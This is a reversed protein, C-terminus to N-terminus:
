NGGAMALFDEESLIPIGLEKAKKNKSSNSTTDNNILYDTKASVSGSVTGGRAEIFDKVADRNPFHEVSGTIVFTKGTIPTTQVQEPAELTVVELLNAIRRRNEEDAMYETFNGALVDGLRSISSIEEATASVIREWDYNMERCILKANALGIGPIGLAYLFKPMAVTSAKECAALLNDFSKDGFGETQTLVEGQAVDGLRELAYGDGKDGYADEGHREHTEGTYCLFNLIHFFCKHNDEGGESKRGNCRGLGLSYTKTATPSGVERILM